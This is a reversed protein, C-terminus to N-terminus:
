RKNSKDNADDTPISVGMIQLVEKIVLFEMDTGIPYPEDDAINSPSPVVLKVLVDNCGEKILDKLYYIRNGELYYGIRGELNKAPSNNYLTSFGNRVPIFSNEQDKMNSIQHVGKGNPLDLYSSPIESFTMTLCPSHKVEVNFFSSIYQSGITTEGLRLNQIHNGKVLTALAQEILLIIERPDYRSDDSVDGGELRRLIQDSIKLKTTFM